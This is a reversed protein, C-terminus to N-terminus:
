IEKSWTGSASQAARWMGSGYGFYIDSVKTGNIYIEIGSQMDAEDEADDLWGKITVTATKKSNNTGASYGANYGTTYVGSSNLTGGSYYGAQVTYTTSTTPSWNLTGRNAM